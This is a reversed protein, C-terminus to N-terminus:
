QPLARELYEAATRVCERCEALRARRITKCTTCGTDERFHAELGAVLEPRERELIARAAYFAGCVGGPARGKALRRYDTPVAAAAEDEGSFARLIAEACNGPRADPYPQFSHVAREVRSERDGSPTM